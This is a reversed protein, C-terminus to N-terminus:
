IRSEAGGESLLKLVYMWQKIHPKFIAVNDEIKKVKQNRGENESVSKNVKRDREGKKIM